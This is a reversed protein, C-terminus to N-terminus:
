EDAAEPRGGPPDRPIVRFVTSAQKQRQYPVLEDLLRDHADSDSWRQLQPESDFRLCLHCENPQNLARLQRLSRFGEFRELEARVTRLWTPFFAQGDEDLDHRVHVVIMAHPPPASPLPSPKCAPSPGPKLAHRAARCASGTPQESAARDSGAASTTCSTISCM